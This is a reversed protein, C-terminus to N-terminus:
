FFVWKVERTWAVLESHSRKKQFAWQSDSFANVSEFFRVLNEGVAREVIKSIISTIHVGRYNRPDSVTKKKFIPHLWHYKWSKPWYGHEICLRAIMVIPTCLSNACKKLIKNPMQDPGTATDDKLQKLLRM